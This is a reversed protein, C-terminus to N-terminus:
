LLFFITPTPSYPRIPFKTINYLILIDRFVCIYPYTEYFLWNWLCWHASIGSSWLTTPTTEEPSHSQKPTQLLTGYFHWLFEYIFIYIRALFLIFLIYPHGRWCIEYIQFKSEFWPWLFKFGLYILKFIRVSINTNQYISILADSVKQLELIFKNIKLRLIATKLNRFFYKVKLVKKRNRIPFKWTQFTQEWDLM